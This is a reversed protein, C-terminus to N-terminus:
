LLLLLLMLVGISFVMVDLGEESDDGETDVDVDELGSLDSASIM